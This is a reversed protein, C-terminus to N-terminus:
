NKKNKEDFFKVWSKWSPWFALWYGVMGVLFSVISLPNILYYTTFMFGISVLIFALIKNIM